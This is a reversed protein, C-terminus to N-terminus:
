VLVWHNPAVEEFVNKDFSYRQLEINHERIKKAEVLPDPIPVADLLSKTYPHVPNDYLEESDALEIIKGDYMVAVRDCIHKVMALDHAIFLYTLGLKQQLENLLEVIQAQISVDLASLPEDCVIFKPKVALARAIGIRQQQGGSFEHPYRNAHEKELGVLELLEEVRARREKKTRTLKHIDLPQGIIDLVKMRPNLSAQPDQFIIQVDRRLIKLEKRNFDHIGMGQYLVEGQTAKQLQLLLRGTTSKGSGSEGVLGLTEGERIQFDIKDVARIAGGLKLHFTKALQHVSVLSKKDNFNKPVHTIKKQDIRPLANLLKKTYSHRPQNFISLTNNEEVIEGDKMVVVRDCMGAVVGFDHTILIISMAFKEQLKKMLQLIQAQIRVDLATTPEDAILLKPRCVLAMAIMARQLMGGSFEHPYQHYREDPSSIGVLELMKITEIKAEKPSLRRHKITMEDIQQGIKITPNFSSMPDQFIMSMETGRITEMQKESYTSIPKGEYDITGSTVRATQTPLLQMIAKATVSKGSGSEGVIGLTEGKRVTLSVNKIAQLDHETSQFAVSLNNVSLVNEM